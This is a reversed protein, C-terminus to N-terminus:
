GSWNGVISPIIKWLFVIFFIFLVAIPIILSVAFSRQSLEQRRDKEEVTTARYKHLVLLAPALLIIPWVERTWFMLAASASILIIALNVKRSKTLAPIKEANM